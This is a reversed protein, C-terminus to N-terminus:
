SRLRRLALLLRVALFYESGLRPLRVLLVFLGQAVMGFLVVAGVVEVLFPLHEDPKAVTAAYALVLAAAFGFSGRMSAMLREREWAYATRLVGEADIEESRAIERIDSVVM